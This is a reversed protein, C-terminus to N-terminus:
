QTLFPMEENAIRLLAEVVEPRDGEIHLGDTYRLRKPEGALDYLRQAEGLPTREDNRAGIIVVPRPTIAAVHQSTDLEPGYALWHVVYSLPVNLLRSEIRRAIQVELWLRNDAAGHVLLAATIRPDRVAARAAFPVGLSGGVIIINDPDAWPQELVWDLALSTAPVTDLFGQRAPAIASVTQTFGRVRQPGDYPYDIGVVARAGVDGFLDVADSGTRQGGLVIMVPLPLDRSDDRIVRFRVNLGSDSGVYVLESKQGFPTRSETVAVSTIHGQREDFYASRPQHADWRLWLLAVTVTLVATLLFYKLIKRITKM